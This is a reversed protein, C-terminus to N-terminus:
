SFKLKFDNQLLSPQTVKSEEKFTSKIPQTLIPELKVSVFKNTFITLIGPLSNFDFAFQLTTNSKLAM